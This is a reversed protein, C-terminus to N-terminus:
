AEGFFYVKSRSNKLRPLIQRLKKPKGFSKYADGRFNNAYSNNPDLEIAKTYNIVASNFDKNKYAVLGKNFMEEADKNITQGHLNFSSFLLLLICLGFINRM